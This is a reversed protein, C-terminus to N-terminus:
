KFIADMDAPYGGNHVVVAAKTKDTIAAEMAEPNINYSEPAVDVFIPVANALVICTASAFFGLASTLVEDGPGVGAARLAIVLAM